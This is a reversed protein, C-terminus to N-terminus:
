NNDNVNDVSQEMSNVGQKAGDVVIESWDSVHVYILQLVGILAISIQINAISTFGNMLDYTTKSYTYLFTYVVMTYIIMALKFSLHQQASIGLLALWIYKFYEIKSGMIKWIFSFGSYYKTDGELKFEEKQLFPYIFLFVCLILIQLVSGIMPIALLMVLSVIFTIFLSIPSWAPLGFPIRPFITTYHTLTGIVHSGFSYLLAMLILIVNTFPMVWFSIDKDKFFSFYSNLLERGSSYSFASTAAILRNVRTSLFTEKLMEFKDCSSNNKYPYQFEILSNRIYDTMSFKKNKPEKPCWGFMATSKYPPGNLDIGGLGGSEVLSASLYSMAAGCYYFICIYVTGTVVSYLFSKIKLQMEPQYFTDRISNEDNNEKKNNLKVSIENILDEEKDSDKDGGDGLTDKDGSDSTKDDNMEKEQIVANEIDKALDSSVNMDDTIEVTELDSPFEEGEQTTNM